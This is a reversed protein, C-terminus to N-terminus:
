ECVGAVPFTLGEEAELAVSLGIRDFGAARCEAELALILRGGIGRRRWADDV